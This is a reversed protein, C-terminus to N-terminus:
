FTQLPIWLNYITQLNPLPLLDLSLMMTPLSLPLLKTERAKRSNNLREAGLVMLTNRRMTEMPTKSDPIGAMQDPNDVIIVIQYM